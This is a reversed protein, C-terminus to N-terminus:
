WLKNEGLEILIETNEFDKQHIKSFPSIFKIMTVLNLAKSSFPHAITGGVLYSNKLPKWNAKTYLNVLEKQCTFISIDCNQNIIFDNAAKILKLAIGKGQYHPHTIVENLGYAIYTHNKLTFSKQSIAVHGIVTGQHIMVFATAYTNPNAPYDSTSHWYLKQLAIIQKKLEPHYQKIIM